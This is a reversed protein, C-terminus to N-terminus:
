PDTKALGVPGELVDCIKAASVGLGCGLEFYERERDAHSIAM